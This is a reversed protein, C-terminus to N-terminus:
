FKYDSNEIQVYKLIYKKEKTFSLHEADNNWHWM